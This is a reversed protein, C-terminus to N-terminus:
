CDDWRVITNWNTREFNQGSVFDNWQNVTTWPCVETIHGASNAIGDWTVTKSVTNDNCWYIAADYSCSVRSCRGPGPALTAQGGLRRLYNVGDRITGVNAQRFQNCFQVGRGRISRRKMAPSPTEAKSAPPLVFEPNITTAQAVVEQITGNLVAVQGPSIEIEWSMPVIEYGPIPEVGGAFTSRGLVSGAIVLSSIRM